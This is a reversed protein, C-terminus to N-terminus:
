LHRQLQCSANAAQHLVLESFSFFLERKSLSEKAVRVVLDAARMTPRGSQAQRYSCDEAFWNQPVIAFEEFVMAQYLVIAMDFAAVEAAAINGASVARAM